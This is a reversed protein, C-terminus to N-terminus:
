DDKEGEEDDYTWYAFTCDPDPGVPPMPLTVQAGNCVRDEKIATGDPMQFKVDWAQTELVRKGGQWRETVTGNAKKEVIDVISKSGDCTKVLGLVPTKVLYTEHAAYQEQPIGGVVPIVTLYITQNMGYPLNTLTFSTVNNISGLDSGELQTGAKFSWISVNQSTPTFTVSRNDSAWEVDVDIEGVPSYVVKTATAEYHTPEDGGEDIDAWGRVVLSLAQAPAIGSFWMSYRRPEYFDINTTMSYPNYPNLTAEVNLTGKNFGGIPKAWAVQLEYNGTVANPDEWNDWDREASWSVEDLIEITFPQTTPDELM